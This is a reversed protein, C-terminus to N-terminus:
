EPEYREPAQDEDCFLGMDYYVRRVIEEADAVRDKPVSITLLADMERYKVSRVLSQPLHQKVEDALAKPDLMARVSHELKALTKNDLTQAPETVVNGDRALYAHVPGPRWGQVKGNPRPVPRPFKPDYGSAGPTYRRRLVADSVSLLEMMEKRTLLAEM